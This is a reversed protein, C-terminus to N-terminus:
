TISTSITSIWNENLLKMERYRLRPDTKTTPADQELRSLADPRSAKKAPRYRLKIDPLSDLLCKWRIQREILTRKSMFYQLNKHDTLIEIPQGLSMLEARWFEIARIIALLEKDHIDYNCEAPSLKRSFYGVPRLRQEPDWQSLCAGMAWGSCDTELVTKRDPDFLTFIPATIFYKKLREFSLKAEKDILIKGNGSFQKKSYRQLSATLKTFGHIFDRYFNAFGLFSRVATQSRPIEWKEIAIKKEPDVSIGKEATIVFGLYKVQKVVFECKKLDLKLGANTLRELVQDVKKLHEEQAGSSWILVDDLYATCFEDLYDRLLDNIWRQWAAPAGCLGFPM